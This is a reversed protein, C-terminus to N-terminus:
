KLKPMQNPHWRPDTTQLNETCLTCSTHSGPTSGSSESPIVCYITYLKMNQGRLFSLRTYDRLQCGCVPYPYRYTNLPYCM